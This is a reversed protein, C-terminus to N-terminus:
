GDWGAAGMDVKFLGGGWGDFFNAVGEDQFLVGGGGPWALGERVEKMPFVVSPIVMWGGVSSRSITELLAVLNWMRILAAWTPPM